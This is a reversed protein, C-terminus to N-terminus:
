DGDASVDFNDATYCTGTEGCWNCTFVGNGGGKDTITSSCNMKGCNCLVFGGEGCYPCGPYEDVPNLSGSITVKDYGEHRARGEDIKFAWTRVWDRGRKEVRMGFTHNKSCKCLIVNAEM